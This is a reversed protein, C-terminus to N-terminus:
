ALLLVLIPRLDVIGRVGIKQFLLPLPFVVLLLLGISSHSYGYLLGGAASIYIVSAVFWTQTNGLHAACTNCGTADDYKRDDLDCLLADASCIMVIAIAPVLDISMGCLIWALAGISTGVAIPKFLKYNRIPQTWTRRGYMIVGIFAGVILLPAFSHYMSLALIAGCTAILSIVRLLRPHQLAIRHRHQMQEIKQASARHFVYVAMALLGSGLVAWPHVRQSQILALLATISAVYAAAPIGLVTLWAM